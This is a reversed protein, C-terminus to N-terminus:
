MQGIEPLFSSDSPVFLLTVCVGVKFLSRTALFSPLMEFVSLIVGLAVLRLNKLPCFNPLPLSPDSFSRRPRPEDDTLLLLVRSPVLRSSVIDGLDLLFTNKSDDQNRRKKRKEKEEGRRERVRKEKGRRERVRKEKEGRREELGEARSQEPQEARGQEGRKEGRREERRREEEERSREELDEGRSEEDINQVYFKFRKSFSFLALISLIRLKFSYIKLRPAHRLCRTM